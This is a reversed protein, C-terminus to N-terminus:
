LLLTDADPQAYQAYKKGDGAYLLQHRTGFGCMEQTTGAIQQGPAAKGDTIQALSVPAFDATQIQRDIDAQTQDDDAPKRLHSHRSEHFAIAFLIAVEFAANVIKDTGRRQLRIRRDGHNDIRRCVTRVP